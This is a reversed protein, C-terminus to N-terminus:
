SLFYRAHAKQNAIVAIGGAVGNCFPNHAVLLWYFHDKTNFTESRSIGLRTERTLIWACELGYTLPNNDNSTSYFDTIDKM